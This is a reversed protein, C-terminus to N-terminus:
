RPLCVFRWVKLIVQNLGEPANVMKAQIKNGYLKSNYYCVLKGTLLQWESESFLACM